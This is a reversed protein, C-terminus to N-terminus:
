TITIREVVVWNQRLANSFGIPISVVICVFMMLITGSDCRMPFGLLSQFWIVSGIDSSRCSTAACQFVWYPNFGGRMPIRLPPRYPRLANSFGIPISVESFILLAVIGSQRLANSFGIPISVSTIANLGRGDFRDCRMPFGLLSQFSTSCSPWSCRNSTTAACQFVWYPNFCILLGPHFSTIATPRLANSFGIPISVFWYQLLHSLVLVDCRM